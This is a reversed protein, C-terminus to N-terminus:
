DLDVVKLINHIEEETFLESAILRDEFSEPLHGRPGVIKKMRDGSKRSMPDIEHGTKNSFKSKKNKGLQVEADPTRALPRANPNGHNPNRLSKKVKSISLNRGNEDQVPERMIEDNQKTKTAQSTETVQQIAELLSDSIPKVTLDKM